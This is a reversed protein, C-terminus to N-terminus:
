SVDDVNHASLQLNVLLYSYSFQYKPSGCGNAAGDVFRSLGELM